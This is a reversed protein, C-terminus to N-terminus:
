RATILPEPQPGYLLLAGTDDIDFRIVRSLAEFFRQEQTMLADPCAMKTSAANGISIGEGGIELAATYRNCGASGSLRMAVPDLRLTVRSSEILGTQGIDEVVWERGAIVEAPDGGCGPMGTGEMRITVTVPHPMGTMSDRCLAERVTVAPGGDPFVFVYAGDEVVPDPLRAEFPTDVGVRRLTLRDDEITLTWFPENGAARFPGPGSPLITCEPLETGRVSVRVREGRNWLFTEPDDPAAYRTGSAAPVRQLPFRDAGVEMVARDDAVGFRVRRGKCDMETAFALPSFAPLIMEGLDVDASGAGIKVPAGIWRPADGIFVGARLTLDIGDPVELAFPIPVQRGATPETLSAVTLGRWGRAEVRLEAGEPLAMRAMYTVTGEVTRALADPAALAALLGAALALPKMM